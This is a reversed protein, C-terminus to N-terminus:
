ILKQVTKCPLDAIPFESRPRWKEKKPESSQEAEFPKDSQTAQTSETQATTADQQQTQRETAQATNADANTQTPEATQTTTATPQQQQTEQTQVVEPQQQQQVPPTQQHENPQNQTATLDDDLKFTDFLDDFDDEASTFSPTSIIALLLVLAILISRSIRM